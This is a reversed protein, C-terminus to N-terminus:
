LAVQLYRAKSSAISTEYFGTTQVSYKFSNVIFSFESTPLRKQYVKKM